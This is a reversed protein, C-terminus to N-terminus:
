HIRRAFELVERDNRCVVCGLLTILQVKIKNIGEEFAETADACPHVHMAQVEVLLDHTDM